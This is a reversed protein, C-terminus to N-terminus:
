SPKKVEYPFNYKLGNIIEIGQQYTKPMEYLAKIENSAYQKINNKRASEAFTVFEMRSGDTYYDLGMDLCETKVLYCIHVLPVEFIGKLEENFIIPSLPDEQFYGNSTCKNFFNRPAKGTSHVMMPTIIPKNENVLYRLTEAPFFTDVDCVFYFECGREKAFVLSQQRIEGLKALRIGNNAYWDAESKRAPNERLEEIDDEIYKVYRYHQANDILWDKIIIPTNDTNNNTHIYLEIRDKDYDLNKVCDLYVPLYKEKDRLLITLQVLPLKNKKFENM